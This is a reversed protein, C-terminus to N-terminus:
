PHGMTEFDPHGEPVVHVATCNLALSLRSPTTGVGWQARKEPEAASAQSRHALADGSADRLNGWTVWRVRGNSGELRPEVFVEELDALDDFRDAVSIPRQATTARFAAVEARLGQEHVTGLMPVVDVDGSALM